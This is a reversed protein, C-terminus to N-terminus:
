RRHCPLTDTCTCPAARDSGPPASDAPVPPDITRWQFLERHREMDIDLNSHCMFEPSAAEEGDPGVMVARYGTVWLLESPSGAEGLQVEQVGYPGRMSPYKRDITYVDSLIVKSQVPIEGSWASQTVPTIAFVLLLVFLQGRMKEKAPGHRLSTLQM